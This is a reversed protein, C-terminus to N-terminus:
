LRGLQMRLKEVLSGFNELREQEQAV